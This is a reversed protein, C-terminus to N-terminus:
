DGQIESGQGGWLDNEQYGPAWDQIREVYSVPALTKEWYKEPVSAKGKAM